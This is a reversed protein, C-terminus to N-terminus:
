RGFIERARRIVSQPVSLTRQVAELVEEGSGIDLDDASVKKADEIFEPDQAMAIFGDRLAAVTAPTLGPPAFFARGVAGTNAYLGLLQKAEANAGLEGLAPVSALDPKRSPQDQLIVTIKKERLLQARTAKVM